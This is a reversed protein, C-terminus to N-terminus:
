PRVPFIGQTCILFTAVAWPMPSVVPTFPKGTGAEPAGPVTIPADGKAVTYTAPPHTPPLNAQALSVPGALLHVNDPLPAGGTNGNVYTHGGTITGAGLLQRGRLDPLNFTTPPNGGYQNGIIAYLAQMQRVQLTRGDCLSFLEPAYPIASPFILGIYTEM